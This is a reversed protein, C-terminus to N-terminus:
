RAPRMASRNPRRHVIITPATRKKTLANPEPKANLTQSRVMQRTTPPRPMPMADTTAGAYMASIEGFSRRPRRADSCCSAIVSPMKVARSESATKAPAAPPADSSKQNPRSAHRQISRTHATGATM